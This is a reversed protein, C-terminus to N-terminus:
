LRRRDALALIAVILLLAATASWLVTSPGNASPDTRAAATTVVAAAPQRAGAFGVAVEASNADIVSQPESGPLPAAAIVCPQTTCDIDNFHAHATLTVTPFTGDDAINVFTAGGGLDCDRLGNTFGQKCIGVAVAALGARFGTGNVIIRQGETLDTAASVELVPRAAPAAVAAAPLLPLAAASAVVAARAVSRIM